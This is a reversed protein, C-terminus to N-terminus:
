SARRHSRWRLVTLTLLAGAPWSALLARHGDHDSPAFTKLILAIAFAAILSLAVGLLLVRLVFVTQADRDVDLNHARQAVRVLSTFPV